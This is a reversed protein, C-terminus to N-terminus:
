VHICAYLGCTKGQNEWTNEGRFERIRSKVKWTIHKSM